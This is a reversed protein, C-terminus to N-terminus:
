KGKTADNILKQLDATTGVFFANNNTVVKEPSNNSKESRPSDLRQKKAHLELMQQNIDALQKVLTGVVEFAKPQESSKAIELAYTLAEQGQQLLSHLNNRSKEFDYDIKEDHKQTEPLIVENTTTIVEGTVVESTEIDFIENLKEEHKLM